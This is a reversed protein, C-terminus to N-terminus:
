KEKELRKLRATVKHKMQRRQARNMPLGTYPDSMPPPTKGQEIRDLAARLEREREVPIRSRPNM